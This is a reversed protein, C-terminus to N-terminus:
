SALVRRAVGLQVTIENIEERKFFIARHNRSSPSRGVFACFFGLMGHRGREQQSVPTKEQCWWLVVGGFCGAPRM